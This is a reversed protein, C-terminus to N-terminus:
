TEKPQKLCLFLVQAPNGWGSPYGEQINERLYKICTILSYCTQFKLSQIFRHPAWSALCLKTPKKLWSPIACLVKITQHPFPTSSHPYIRRNGRGPLRRGPHLCVSCGWKGCYLKFNLSPGKAVLDAALGNVTVKFTERLDAVQFGEMLSIIQVAFSEQFVSMNPKKKGYWLGSLLINKYSYRLNPPLEAVFSQIPWLSINKSKMAPAGDTHWYLSIPFCGESKIAISQEQYVKGDLIDCYMGPTHVFNDLFHKIVSWNETTLFFFHFSLNLPFLM